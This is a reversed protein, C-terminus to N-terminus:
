LDNKNRDKDWNLPNNVIYGSIQDYEQTSRIIHDYYNAQWLPNKRNFRAMKIKNSDIWDDIHNITASKFGAVFSSISKPQRILYPLSVRVNNQLSARGHTEVNYIHTEVNYIHTEAIPETCYTNDLNIIAHIHNPMLIFDGLYLEQRIEFSKFFDDYVIQGWDNMIMKGNDIHGFHNERNATVITIFYHGDSAYNWGRLRNSAIKYKNQFISEM